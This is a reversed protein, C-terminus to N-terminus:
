GPEQGPAPFPLSRDVRGPESWRATGGRVGRSSVPTRYFGDAVHGCPRPFVPTFRVLLEGRVSGGLLALQPTVPISVVRHTGVDTDWWRVGARDWRSNVKWVGGVPLCCPEVKPAAPAWKPAVLGMGQQGREQWGRRRAQGLGPPQRAPSGAGGPAPSPAARRSHPHSRRPRVWGGVWGSRPAGRRGRVGFRGSARSFPVRVLKPAGNGSTGATGSGQSRSCRPPIGAGPQLRFRFKRGPFHCRPDNREHPGPRLPCPRGRGLAEWYVGTRGGTRSLMRPAPVGPDRQGRRPSGPVVLPCRPSQSLLPAPPGTVEM